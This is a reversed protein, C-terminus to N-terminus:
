FFHSAATKQSSNQFCTNSLPVQMGISPFSLDRQVNEGAGCVQVDTCVSLCLWDQLASGERQEQSPREYNAHVKASHHTSNWSIRSPLSMGRGLCQYCNVKCDSHQSLVSHCGVDSTGKKDLPLPAIAASIDRRCGLDRMGQHLAQPRVLCFCM